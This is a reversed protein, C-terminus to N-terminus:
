ECVGSACGLREQLIYDKLGAEALQKTDFPGIAHVWIEDWFYWKDMVFDERVDEDMQLLKGLSTFFIPSTM